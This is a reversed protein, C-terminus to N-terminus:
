LQTKSKLHSQRATAQHARRWLSWAIVHAPTFAGDPSVLPLAGAELPMGEYAVVAVMVRDHALLGLVLNEIREAEVM